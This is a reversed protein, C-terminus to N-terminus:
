VKVDDLGLDEFLGDVGSLTLIIMLLSVGGGIIFLYFYINYM